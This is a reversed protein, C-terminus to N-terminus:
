WGYVTKKEFNLELLLFLPIESINKCVGVYAVYNVTLFLIFTCYLNM